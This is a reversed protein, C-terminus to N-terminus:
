WPSSIYLFWAFSEVVSPYICGPGVLCVHFAHPWILGQFTLAVSRALAPLHPHHSVATRWHWDVFLMLSFFADVMIAPWLCPTSYALGAVAPGSVYALQPQAGRSVVYRVATQLPKSQNTMIRPHIALDYKRYRKKQVLLHYQQSM